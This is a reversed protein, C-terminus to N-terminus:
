ALSNFSCLVNIAPHYKGSNLAANVCVPKVVLHRVFRRYLLIKTNDLDCLIYLKHLPYFAQKFNCALFKLKLVKINRKVFTLNREQADFGFRPM